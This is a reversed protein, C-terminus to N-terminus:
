KHRKKSRQRKMHPKVLPSSVQLEATREHGEKMEIHQSIPPVPLENSKSRSCFTSPPRIKLRIGASPVREIKEEQFSEEVASPAPVDEIPAEKFSASGEKVFSSGKKRSAPGSARAKPAKPPRPAKPGEVKRRKKAGQEPPSSTVDGGVSTVDAKGGSTGPTNERAVDASDAVAVDSGNDMM